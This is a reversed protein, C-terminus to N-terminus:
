APFQELVYLDTSREILLHAAEKELLYEDTQMVEVRLSHTMTVQLGLVNEKVVFVSEFNNVESKSSGYLAAVAIAEVNSTNASEAVHSRFQYILLGILGLDNIQKSSTGNKEVHQSPM